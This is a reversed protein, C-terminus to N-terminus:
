KIQMSNLKDWLAECFNNDIKLYVGPYGYYVYGSKLITLTINKSGDKLDFSLQKFGDDNRYDGLTDEVDTPLYPTAKNIEDFLSNLLNSDNISYYIGTSNNWDNFTQFKAKSINNQIKLKDLVDGGTIITIGNLCEYFEPYSTGDETKIDTMIRFNEDYGNVTYVDTVGINSAFESSYDSQTSWEDLTGNTTGLKKGLLTETHGPYVGITTQIYINGKYVILPLMKSTAFTTAIPLQIKPIYVSNVDINPKFRVSKDTASNTSALTENHPNVINDQNSSNVSDVKEYIGNKNTSADTKIIINNETSETSIYDSNSNANASTNTNAPMKADAFKSSIENNALQTSIDTNDLTPSIETSNTSDNIESKSEQSIPTKTEPVYAISELPTTGKPLTTMLFKFSTIGMLIFFVSAAVMYPKYYIKKAPQIISISDAQLERLLRDKFEDSAKIKSFSDKIKNM